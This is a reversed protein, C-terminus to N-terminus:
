LARRRWGVCHLSFGRCRPDLSCEHAAADIMMFEERIPAHWDPGDILFGAEGNIPGCGMM